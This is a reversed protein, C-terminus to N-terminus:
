ELPNHIFQIILSDSMISWNGMQHIHTKGSGQPYWIHIGQHSPSPPDPPTQFSHLMDYPNTMAFCHVPDEDEEFHYLFNPLQPEEM